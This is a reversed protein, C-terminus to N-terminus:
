LKEFLKKTIAVLLGNLTINLTIQAIQKTATSQKKLFNECFSTLHCLTQPHNHGCPVGSLTIVPSTRCTLQPKASHTAAADHQFWCNQKNEELLAALQTLLKQFSEATLRGQLFNPGCNSKSVSCLL